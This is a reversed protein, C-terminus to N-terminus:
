AQSASIAPSYPLMARCQPYNRCGYFQAGRRDGRTATRLVMTIGCKPCLPAASEGSAVPPASTAGVEVANAPENGLYPALRLAVEGTHYARKVPFRLLPLNAAAFVRNVFEDREQRDERAHSSDDLEIGAMPVLTKPHCLLFDVHKQAIRARAAQNENPRSVFFIDALGVKSQVVANDGVLIRLVHYFSLEAASLFDDRVRYHLPGPASLEPEMASPVLPEAAQTPDAPSQKPAPRFLSFMAALCGPRDTHSIM